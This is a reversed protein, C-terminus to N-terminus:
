VLARAKHVLGQVSAHLRAALAASDEGKVARTPEGVALGIHTKRAGAVRRMHELFSEDGFSTATGGYAIGLPVIECGTRRAVAFAGPKFERVEDGAYTTGEPFIIIGIGQDVRKMMLAVVNAASRRDEREVFLIGSKRALQGVIPWGALDARSVLKGEIHALSVLIDLSSRHNMVFVRGMGRHDKASLRRVADKGDTKVDLGFTAGMHRGFREMTVTLIDECQEPTKGRSEVEHLALTGIGYVAFAATRGAFIADSLRLDKVKM